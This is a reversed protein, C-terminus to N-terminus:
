GSWSRWAQAHSTTGFGDLSTALTKPPLSRQLWPACAVAFRRGPTVNPDCYGCPRRRAAFRFRPLDKGLPLNSHAAGGVCVVM